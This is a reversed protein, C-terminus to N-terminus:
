RKADRLRLSSRGVQLALDLKADDGLLTGPTGLLQCTVGM